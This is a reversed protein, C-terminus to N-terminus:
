LYLSVVTYKSANKVIIIIIIIIIINIIIYSVWFLGNWSDSFCAQGLRTM